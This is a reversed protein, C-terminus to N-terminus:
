YINSLTQSIAKIVNKPVIKKTCEFEGIADLRYSSRQSFTFKKYLQLYDLTAVGAIKYKGTGFDSWQVNLIPSLLDAVNKGVVHVARNYLYPIDFFEVNWGTLITPRIEMYTKFFANLLDYEDAFSVITEDSNIKKRSEGLNLKDNVDLVYCFYKDTIPNNFGISTITNNAKKIDPFGDTVEVEIDFIM